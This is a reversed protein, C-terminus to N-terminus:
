KKKGKGGKGETAAAPTGQAAALKQKLELLLKVEADVMSKEAKSAKVERVKNGQAAVQAELEAIVGADAKAAPTAVETAKAENGRESQKGQYKAKLQEVLAPKIEEVLPSPTGITHGAPLICHLVRPLRTLRGKPVALQSELNAAMNPMYPQILVSLLAAMNVSLGVVTGARAKDESSGKVLKWPTNHQMLQNGLRSVNFVATIAERERADELHNIYAALEQNVRAVLEWDESNLNMEPVKSGFNDKTFKLARNIFNGLNALLEANVKTMLDEWKFASDQNEPRIYMLYFRWVDAPIGTDQADNGFVGIGRSKSFKSDEYNLYETSMLRNVMTWKDGTGLLTSPFVVSHFLVNDKAMFQWYEVMDPNKWWKEWHEM